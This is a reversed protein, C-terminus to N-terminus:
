KILDALTKAPCKTCIADLEDQTIGASSITYICYHDCVNALLGPGREEIPGLKDILADKRETSWYGRKIGNCREHTLRSM